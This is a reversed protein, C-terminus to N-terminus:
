PTAEQDPDPEATLYATGPQIEVQHEGPEIQVAFLYGLPTGDSMYARVVAEGDIGHRFVVQGGVGQQDATVEGRVVDGDPGGIIPEPDPIPDGVDAEWGLLYADPADGARGDALPSEMDVPQPQVTGDAGEIDVFVMPKRITEVVEGTLVKDHARCTDRMLALGLSEVVPADDVVHAAVMQTCAMRTGDAAPPSTENM